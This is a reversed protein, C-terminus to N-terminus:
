KQNWLSLAKLCQSKSFSGIHCTTPEIDLLKALKKYIKKRPPNGYEIVSHLKKRLLQTERDALTGLSIATGPHCGVRDGCSSCEYFNKHHLDSRHPYLVDGKVLVSEKHCRYCYPNM